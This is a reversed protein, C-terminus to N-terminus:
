AHTNNNNNNNNNNSFSVQLIKDKTIIFYWYCPVLKSTFLM